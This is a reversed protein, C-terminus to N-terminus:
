DSRVVRLAGGLIDEYCGCIELYGFGRYGHLGLERAVEEM